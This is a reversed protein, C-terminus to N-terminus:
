VMGGSVDSQEPLPARAPFPVPPFALVLLLLLVVGTRLIGSSPPLLCLKKEFECVNYSVWRLAINYTPHHVQCNSDTIQNQHWMKTSEEDPCTNNINNILFLFWTYLLAVASRNKCSSYTYM